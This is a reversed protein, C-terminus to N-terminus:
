EEIASVVMELTKRLATDVDITTSWDDRPEVNRAADPHVALGTDNPSYQGDRGGLKWVVLDLSPVVFLAHGGSGSKWFADRPLDPVDGDTNVDFQLSYSFHVNYPSKTACKRVYDAPGVQSDNWRGERLMLYGFRLMDTPRLVIGGGGPTNIVGAANRYGYGWRGWGLPRAFHTAVYEELEQGAVHRLMVSALHISSTAYSYGGGPECWLTATTLVKGSRDVVDKRGLSVIDTMAASGDPGAPDITSPKGRVYVPNNGRIGASMALLHGLKIEAMRPDSLPFAEAPLYKPAFIKQDLGDPFLEPREAMLMGVAISTVSKGCSALNATAEHHGRGFYREYALWGNRVVLLGGNKTTGRVYEFAEDLGRRDFGAVGRIATTTRLTRWGGHDDSPPFYKAPDPAEVSPIARIRPIGGLRSFPYARDVRAIRFAWDGDDPATFTMRSGMGTGGNRWAADYGNAPNWRAIEYPILREVQVTVTGGSPLYVAYAEGPKALCFADGALVLENHPEMEWFPLTEMFARAGGLETWLTEWAPMPQDYEGPVHAEWVGGGLYASWWARRDLEPRGEDFNVVLPRQGQERCREIWAIALENHEVADQLGNRTRPQGTQISTMDVASSRIYANDPQNVNHIALPHGFPDIRKWQAALRLGEALEYNENNEEGLNFVVAPLYGFRSVIERYYRAHDYGKWASDDELVLYPVVGQTQMFEFLQRWAEFKAVDFRADYGGHAKAEESTEGVWPWVDNDDGDVNHTMIYLSNIGRAALYEVAARREEPTDYNEYSGLFNEPDDCGAKLWYSGDRFKLYRIGDERTRASELRGLRWFGLAGRPTETVVVQGNHGDLQDDPSSTAFMWEGIEDASFRVKWVHGDLNGRGDGDYFGPVRFERGTPSTFLVDLEVGFPNPEGLGQSDPGDFVIELRAWKAVTAPATFAPEAGPASPAIGTLLLLVSMAGVFWRSLSRAIRRAMM